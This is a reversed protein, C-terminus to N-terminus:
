RSKVVWFDWIRTSDVILNYVKLSNKKRVNQGKKPFYLTAITCLLLIDVIKMHGGKIIIKPRTKIAM